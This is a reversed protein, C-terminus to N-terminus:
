FYPIKDLPFSQKMTKKNRGRSIKWASRFYTQYKRFAPPVANKYNGEDIGLGLTAKMKLMPKTKSNHGNAHLVVFEM